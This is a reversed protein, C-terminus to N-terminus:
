RIYNVYKLRYCNERFTGDYISSLIRLVGRTYGSCAGGQVCPTFQVYMLRESSAWSAVQKLKHRNLRYAKNFFKM